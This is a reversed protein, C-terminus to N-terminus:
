LSLSFLRQAWFKWWNKVQRSLCQLSSYLTRVPKATPLNKPGPKASTEGVFLGLPNYMSMYLLPQKLEWRQRQINTEQRLLPSSILKCWNRKVLCPLLGSHLTCIDRKVHSRSGPFFFCCEHHRTLNWLIAQGKVELVRRLNKLGYSFHKM